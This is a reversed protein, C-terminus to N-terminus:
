VPSYFLVNFFLETNGHEEIIPFFNELREMDLKEPNWSGIKNAFYISKKDKRCTYGYIEIEFDTINEDKFQSFLDYIANYTLKRGYPIRFNGIVGPKIM